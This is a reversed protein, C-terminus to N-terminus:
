SKAPDIDEAAALKSSEKRKAFFEAIPNASVITKRKFAPAEAIIRRRRSSEAVVCPPKPNKAKFAHVGFELLGSAADSVSVGNEKALTTVQDMDRADGFARECTAPSELRKRFAEIKDSWTDYLKPRGVQKKEM